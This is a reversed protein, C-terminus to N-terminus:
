KQSVICIINVLFTVNNYMIVRGINVISLSGFWLSLDMKSKKFNKKTNPINVYVSKQDLKLNQVYVPHRLLVLVAMM